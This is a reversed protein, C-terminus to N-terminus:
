ATRGCGRFQAPRIELRPRDTGPWSGVCLQHTTALRIAREAAARRRLPAPYNGNVAKILLWPESASRSRKVIPQHRVRGGAVAGLILPVELLQESQTKRGDGTRQGFNLAAQKVHFHTSERPSCAIGDLAPTRFLHSCMKTEDIFEKTTRSSIQVVRNVDRIEFIDKKATVVCPVTVCTGRKGVAELSGKDLHLFTPLREVRSLALARLDLHETRLKEATIR